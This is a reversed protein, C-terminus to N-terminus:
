KSPEIAGSDLEATDSVASLPRRRLQPLCQWKPLRAIQDNPAGGALAKLRRAQRWAAELRIYAVRHAISADLWATLAAGDADSWEECDKRALWQAAIEEIRISDQM